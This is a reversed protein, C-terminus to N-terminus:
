FVFLVNLEWRICILDVSRFLCLGNKWITNNSNTIYMFQTLLYGDGTFGYAYKLTNWM